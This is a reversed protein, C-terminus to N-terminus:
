RKAKATRLCKIILDSLATKNMYQQTYKTDTFM